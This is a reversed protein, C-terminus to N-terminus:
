TLEASDEAAAKKKTTKKVKLSQEENGCTGCEEWRSQCKNKLFPAATQKNKDTITQPLTRLEM